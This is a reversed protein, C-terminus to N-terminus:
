SASERECEGFLQHLALARGLPNSRVMAAVLRSALAKRGHVEHAHLARAIREQAKPNLKPALRQAEALHSATYRTM